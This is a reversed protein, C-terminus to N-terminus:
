REPAAVFTLSVTNVERTATTGGVDASVAVPAPATFAVGGRSSRSREIKAELEVTALRQPLGQEKAARALDRAADM